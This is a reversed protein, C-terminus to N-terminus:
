SPDEPLPINPYPSSQAAEPYFCTPASTFATIFKRTGCFAPFEKVLQLGTLKELLVGNWPTLLNLIYTLLYSHVILIIGFLNCSLKFNRLRRGATYITICFATIRLVLRM